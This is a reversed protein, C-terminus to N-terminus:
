QTQLTAVTLTRDEHPGRAVPAAVVVIAVAVAVCVRDPRQRDTARGLVAQHRPVRFRAAGGQGGGVAAPQGVLPLDDGGVQVVLAGGAVRAGRGRRREGGADARQGELGVLHEGPAVHLVDHHAGGPRLVQM